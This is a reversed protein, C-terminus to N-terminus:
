WTWFFAVLPCLAKRGLFLLGESMLLFGGEYGVSPRKEPGHHDYSSAPAEAPDIALDVTERVIAGVSVAASTRAFSWAAPDM